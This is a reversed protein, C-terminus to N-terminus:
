YLVGWLVPHATVTNGSLILTPQLSREQIHDACDWLRTAWIFYFFFLSFALSCLWEKEKRCDVMLHAAEAVNKWLWSTRGWLPGLILSSLSLPNLAKFGHTLILTGKGLNNINPMKDCCFRVLVPRVLWLSSMNVIREVDRYTQVDWFLFKSSFLISSAVINQMHLFEFSNQQAGVFEYIHTKIDAGVREREREREREIERERERERDWVCVCVCVCLCVFVSSFVLQGFQKWIWSNVDHYNV